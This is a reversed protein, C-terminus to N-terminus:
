AANCFLNALRNQKKKIHKFPNKSRYCTLITNSNGDVVVVMNKSKDCHKKISSNQFINSGLVYYILGQKFFAQGYEIVTSIDEPKINRENARKYSHNTHNFTLTEAMNLSENKIEWIVKSQNTTRFNEFTKM